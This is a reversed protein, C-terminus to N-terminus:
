PGVTTAAPCQFILTWNGRAVYGGTEVLDLRNNTATSRPLFPRDAVFVEFEQPTTVTAFGQSCDIPQQSSDSHVTGTVPPRFKYDFTATSSQYPPYDVVWRVYLTDNVNPDVTQITFTSSPAVLVISGLPPTADIIAPPSNAATLPDQFDPAVPIVCAFMPHLLALLLLASAQNLLLRALGSRRM